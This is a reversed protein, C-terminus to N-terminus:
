WTGMAARMNPPYVSEQQTDSPHLGDPSGILDYQTAGAIIVAPMGSDGVAGIQAARMDAVTGLVSPVGFTRDGITQVWKSAGPKGAQIAAFTLAMDARLAAMNAYVGAWLVLDNTGIQVWLENISTGNLSAAIAAGGGAFTGYDTALPAFGFSGAGIFTVRGPYNARLYAAIGRLQFDTSEQSSGISDVVATMRRTTVQTVPSWTRGPPLLVEAVYTGYDPKTVQYASPGNTIRLQPNDHLVVYANDREFFMPPAPSVDAGGVSTVPGGNESVGISCVAPLGQSTFSKIMIVDGTMLTAPGEQVGYESIVDFRRGPVAIVTDSATASQMYISLDRVQRLLASIQAVQAQSLELPVAIVDSVVMAALWSADPRAGIYFSGAGFAACAGDVPKSTTLDGGSNRYMGRLASPQAPNLVGSWVQNSDPAMSSLAVAKTVGTEIVFASLLSTPGDFTDYALSASTTGAGYSALASVVAPATVPGLLLMSLPHAQAINAAGSLYNGVGDFTLKGTGANYAPRRGVVGGATVVRGSARDTWTDVNGGALAVGQTGDWWSGGLSAILAQLQQAATAGAGYGRSWGANFGM